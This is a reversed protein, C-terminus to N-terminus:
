SWCRAWCTRFPHRHVPAPLDLEAGVLL